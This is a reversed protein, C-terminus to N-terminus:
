ADVVDHHRAVDLGLAGCYEGIAVLAIVFVSALCSAIRAVM